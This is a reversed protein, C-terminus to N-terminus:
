PRRRRGGSHRLEIDGDFAEIQLEAGGSGLDFEIRRGMPWRQMTLPFDSFFEGDHRAMRVQADTDEPIEVTVDGDHTTLRYSGRPSLVGEFWIDGDVTNAVVTTANVDMLTITGDTADVDIDGSASHLSVDGDMSSLRIRGEMEEADIAGDDTRITVRGSGGRVIVDGDHVDINVEGRTGDVRVDSDSGRLDLAMTAPVTLRYDVDDDDDWRGDVGIRVTGSSRHVEIMGRYSRNTRVEVEDRDWTRVVISGEHNTLELTANPDVAFTTDGSQALATMLLAGAFINMLM